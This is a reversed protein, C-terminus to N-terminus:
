LLRANGGLVADLNNARAVIALAEKVVQHALFLGYGPHSLPLDNYTLVRLGLSVKARIPNLNVDYAEEAISLETLRVPLVRKSGWIFLTFPADPPIIEITGLAMLVTNAIVVGTQPYALLELAALQPHIGLSVASEDGEALRDTADLEVDLKISEVPAGTLRLVESRDGEGGGAKIELSRSLTEPNYQFPIVTPVPSPLALTVLAGKLLRPSGPFTTM